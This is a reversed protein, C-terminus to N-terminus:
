LAVFNVLNSVKTKVHHQLPGQHAMNQKLLINFAGNAKHPSIGASKIQDLQLRLSINYSYHNTKKVIAKAQENLWLRKKWIYVGSSQSMNQHSLNAELYSLALQLPLQM